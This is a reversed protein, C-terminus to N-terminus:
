GFNAMMLLNSSFGDVKYSEKACFSFSSACLVRLPTLATHLAFAQLTPAISDLLDVYCSAHVESDLISGSETLPAYSDQFECVGFRWRRPEFDCESLSM